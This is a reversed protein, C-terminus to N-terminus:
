IDEPMYGNLTSPQWQCDGHVFKQKNGNPSLAATEAKPWCRGNLDTIAVVNQLMSCAWSKRAM